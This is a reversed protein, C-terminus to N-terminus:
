NLRFNTMPLVQIEKMVQTVGEENLHGIVDNAIPTNYCINWDIEDGILIAIEWETEDNTYSGYYQGDALKFRVVSIGYGNPFFMKSQKGEGSSHPIFNLDNFTKM